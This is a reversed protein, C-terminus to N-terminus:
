THTLVQGRPELLLLIWYRINFPYSMGLIDLRKLGVVGGRSFENGIVMAKVQRNVALAQVQTLDKLKVSSVSAARSGV